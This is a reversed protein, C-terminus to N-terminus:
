YGKNHFYKGLRIIATTNKITYGFFDLDLSEHFKSITLYNNCYDRFLKAYIYPTLQATKM